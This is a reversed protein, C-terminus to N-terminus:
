NEEGGGRRKREGVEHEFWAMGEGRTIENSRRKEGFAGDDREGLDRRKERKWVM